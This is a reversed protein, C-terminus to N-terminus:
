CCAPLLVATQALGVRDPTAHLVGVLIWPFLVVQLGMAVAGVGIGALYWHFRRASPAASVGM